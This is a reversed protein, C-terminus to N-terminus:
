FFQLWNDIFNMTHGLSLLSEKSSKSPMPRGGDSSVDDPISIHEKDYADVSCMLEYRYKRGIKFYNEFIKGHLKTCIITNYWTGKDMCQSDQVGMEFKLHKNKEIIWSLGVHQFLM